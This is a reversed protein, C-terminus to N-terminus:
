YLCLFLFTPASQASEDIFSLHSFGETLAELLRHVVCWLNKKEAAKPRSKKDEIESNRKFM